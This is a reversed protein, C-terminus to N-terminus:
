QQAADIRGALARAGSLEEPTNINTFSLLAPDQARIEAEDLFRIRLGGYAAQVSRQGRELAQRFVEALPKAYFAFLPEAYGGVVPVVADYGEAEGAMWRVLPPHIFPMDCAVAFCLPFGAASLGTYLGTLPGRMQSFGPDDTVVAAGLGIFREPDDAVIVTESFVPSLARIVRVIIPVGGVEVFAKHTGMRSNAGGALIVATGPLKIDKDM